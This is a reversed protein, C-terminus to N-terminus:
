EEKEDDKGEEEPATGALMKPNVRVEVEIRVVRRLVDYAYPILVAFFFSMLLYRWSFTANFLEETFVTGGEGFVVTLVMMGMMNIVGTMIAYPIWFDWGRLPKGQIRGWIVVALVAPAFECILRNM